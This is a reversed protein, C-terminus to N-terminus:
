KMQNIHVFFLTEQWWQWTAELVDSSEASSYDRVYLGWLCCSKQMIKYLNFLHSIFPFLKKWKPFYVCLKPCAQQSLM